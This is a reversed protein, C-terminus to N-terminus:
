LAPVRLIPWKRKENEGVEVEEGETRAVTHHLTVEFLGVGGKSQSALQKFEVHRQAASDGTKAKQARRLRANM